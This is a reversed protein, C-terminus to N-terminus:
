QGDNNAGMDGLGLLARVTSDKPAPRFPHKGFTM